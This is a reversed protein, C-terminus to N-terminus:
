NNQAPKVFHISKRYKGDLGKNFASISKVYAGADRLDGEVDNKFVSDSTFQCLEKTDAKIEISVKEKSSSFASMSGLVLFVTLVRKM